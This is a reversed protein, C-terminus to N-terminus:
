TGDNGGTTVPDVQTVYVSVDSMFGDRLILDEMRERLLIRNTLKDSLQDEMTVVVRFTVRKKSM